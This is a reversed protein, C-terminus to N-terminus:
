IDGTRCVKQVEERVKVLASNSDNCREPINLSNNDNTSYLVGRLATPTALVFLGPSRKLIYFSMHGQVSNRERELPPALDLKQPLYAGTYFHGWLTAGINAGYSSDM